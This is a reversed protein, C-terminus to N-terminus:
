LNKDFYDITRKVVEDFMVKNRWGTLQRIKHSDFGTADFLVREEALDHTGFEIMNEKGIIAEIHELYERLTKGDKSSVNYCGSKLKNCDELISLILSILDGIYLFDWNQMCSSEMIVKKNELLNRIVSNFMKYDYDHEGCISFIRLHIFCVQFEKCMKSVHHFFALKNIGYESIPHCITDETKNKIAGYEAVSGISIVCNCNTYKLINYICSQLIERCNKHIEKTDRESKQTGAWTLVIIKHCIPIKKYLEIYDELDCEVIEIQLSLMEIEHKKASNPRIIAVIEHKKECALCKLINLGIFSTAGMVVIKEM